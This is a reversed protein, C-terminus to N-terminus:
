QGLQVCKGFVSVVVPHNTGNTFWVSWGNPDTPTGPWSGNVLVGPQNALGAAVNWGGGMVQTNSPCPFFISSDFGPPITVDNSGSWDDRVPTANRVWLVARCAYWTGGAGTIAYGGTMCNAGPPEVAVTPSVGDKGPAGGPGAPGQLGQANSFTVVTDDRFCAAKPTAGQAVNYILGLKSSLCGTFPGPSSTTAAILGGASVLLLAAAGLIALRLRLSARLRASVSSM